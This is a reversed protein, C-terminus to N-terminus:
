GCSHGHQQALTTAFAVIAAGAVVQGQDSPFFARKLSPALAWPRALALAANLSQLGKFV